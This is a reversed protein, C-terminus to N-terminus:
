LNRVRNSKQERFRTLRCSGSPKKQFYENGKNFIMSLFNAYDHLTSRAGGAIMPTHGPDVPIFHTSTMKLPIALKEQFLTEWDKDTVLEAIRGAVQM